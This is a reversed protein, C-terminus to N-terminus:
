ILLPLITEEIENTKNHKNNSNIEETDIKKTEEMDIDVANESLRVNNKKAYQAAVYAVDLSPVACYIIDPKERSRLYRSLSKGMVYHSYFRRLTVNKAYGPEYLMTFKYSIDKLEKGTVLRQNKTTHSFSTTVVEVKTDDKVDIIFKMIRVKKNYTVSDVISTKKLKTEISSIVNESVIVENDLRSGYIDKSNSPNFMSYVAIFVLIMLIICIISIIIATIHKKIFKMVDSEM